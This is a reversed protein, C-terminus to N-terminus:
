STESGLAAIAATGVIRKRLATGVMTLLRNTEALAAGRGLPTIKYYRQQM